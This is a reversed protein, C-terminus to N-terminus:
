RYFCIPFHQVDPSSVLAGSITDLMPVLANCPIGQVAASNKFIEMQIRIADFAGPLLQVTMTTLQSFSTHLHRPFALTIPPKRPCKYTKTRVFTSGSSISPVRHLKKKRPVVSARYFKAPKGRIIRGRSASDSRTGAVGLTRSRSVNPIKM